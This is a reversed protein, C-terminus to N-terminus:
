KKRPRVTLTDSFSSAAYFYGIAGNTINSKVNAGPASFYSGDNNAQLSLASLFSYTDFDVSFIDSRAKDGLKFTYQCQFPTVKGGEFVLDDFTVLYYNDRLKYQLTDNRSFDLYYYNTKSPNDVLFLWIKYGSTDNGFSNEKDKKMVSDGVIPNQNQENFFPEATSNAEYITGNYEVTLKYPTNLKIGNYTPPPLYVGKKSYTFQWQEGGQETIKVIANAIYISDQPKSYSVSYNVTVKDLTLPNDDIRGYISVKPNVDKIKVDITETCSQLLFVSLITSILYKFNKM